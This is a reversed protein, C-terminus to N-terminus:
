STSNRHLVPLLAALLPLSILLRSDHQAQSHQKFPNCTQMCRRRLRELFPEPWKQILKNNWRVKWWRNSSIIRLSFGLEWRIYNFQPMERCRSDIELILRRELSTSSSTHERRAASLRVCLPLLHEDFSASGDGVELCTGGSISWRSQSAEIRSLSRPLPTRPSVSQSLHLHGGLSLCLTFIHWDCSPSPSLSDARAQTDVPVLRVNSLFLHSPDCTLHLRERRWPDSLHLPSTTEGRGREQLYKLGKIHVWPTRSKDWHDVNYNPINAETEKLLMRFLPSVYNDEENENKKWENPSFDQLPQPRLCWRRERQPPPNQNKLDMLTLHQM